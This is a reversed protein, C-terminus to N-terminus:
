AEFPTLANRVAAGLEAPVFPKRLLSGPLDAVAQGTAEDVAYASTFLVRLDPWRERLRDALQRGNVRPMVVDTVLLAPPCPMADAVVLAEEGDCAETVTYGRERLASVVIRRVHEDDEVVLVDGSGAADGVVRSPAEAEAAPRSMRPFYLEFTTGDGVASEVRVVGGSQKVIGYTTSLGLGSGRGPGKTTYFPEFIRARTAPDMGVGTDSVRLVVMPVATGPAVSSAMGERESEDPVLDVNRTEIRLRGGAPMADRANVVLNMLAQELQGADAHVTGLDAALDIDLSIEASIVRRLMKELAHVVDNVNVDRADLLQRRGFALLQRTLTAARTAASFIEALDERRTDGEPLEEMLLSSYTGIVTLLNNFDHAVGGALQGIAEMKQAVRLQQELDRRETLDDMMMVLHLRDRLSIALFECSLAVDKGATTVFEVDREVPRREELAREADALLGSARWSAIQRFNQSLLTERAVGTISAASDNALICAGTDAEYIIIGIAAERIIAQSFEGLELAARYDAAAKEEAHRRAENDVISAVICRGEPSEWPAIGILVSLETGDKRLAVLERGSALMRSEHSETLGARLTAHRPRLREPVLREISLGAMEGKAYGLLEEAMDNVHLIVGHEDAVVVAHPVANIFGHFM